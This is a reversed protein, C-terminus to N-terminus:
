LDIIDFTDYQELCSVAGAPEPEVAKAGKFRYLLGMGQITILPIMAVMAIVGFSDQVGRGDIALCLGEALPLLFAATMSGSAVGGSDFAVTVFMKPVFFSMILALAYGPILFWLVSIGLLMRVLSLGVSVAVGICLSLKMANGSIAGDTLEEVQKMLIYVAPEAMVIFYGIIMGIPVIIWPNEMSGITAGLFSGAPVFGVNAGTLFLVLGIYTYILGIVIKLLPKKAMRLALVQFIAFVLVIPFMSGAIEKMYQPISSTFLRALQVSDAAEEIESLAYNGGDPHYVIGLILVALVPGISCLAMLGFSDDAAHRDNRVRSIGVGMAMIFPVTMPGTTVGGSDFAIASFELSVFATLAFIILYSVIMIPAFPIGFLMRLLAVVLFVGVGVSVAGILVNNPISPVQGALVQLDPESMTIIVGLIFGIGLIAWLKKTKTMCSGIREGMMSMSLDAGVSFFMMGIVLLGAGILFEMLIGPSVRAISFCVILVIVVVPLVASLSEGLIERFKQRFYRM